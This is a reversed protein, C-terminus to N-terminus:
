QEIVFTVPGDNLLDVKMKAGFIGSAVRDEGLEKEMHRLFSHYLPEAIEPKAADLFDPRNGRKCNGYLTFQSIVLVNLGLDKVSLNMRHNEDQFLRLSALKKAMWALEKEGDALHIGVFLLLGQEISGVTKEDVRVAARKVRQVVVRM